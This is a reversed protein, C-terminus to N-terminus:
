KKIQDKNNTILPKIVILKRTLNATIDLGRDTGSKGLADAWHEREDYRLMSDVDVEADTFVKYDSPVHKELIEALTTEFAKVRVAKRYMNADLELSVGALAKGLAEIAPLSPDYTIVTKGDVEPSLTVKYDKPTYRTIAEAVTLQVPALRPGAPSTNKDVRVMQPNLKNFYSIVRQADRVQVSSDPNQEAVQASAPIAVTACGSLGAVCMLIALPKKYHNSM